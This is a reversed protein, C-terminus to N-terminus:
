GIMGGETGPPEPLPQWHTVLGTLDYETDGDYWTWCGNCYEAVVVVTSYWIGEGAPANEDCATVIYPQNFHPLREEVSIWKGLVNIDKGSKLNMREVTREWEGKYFNAARQMEALMASLEEVRDAAELVIRDCDCSIWVEESFESPWGEPVEETVAYACGSCSHGEAPPTSTCRLKEILERDTM